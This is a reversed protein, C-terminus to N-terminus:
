TAVATILVQLLLMLLYLCIVTTILIQLLVVPLCPSLYCNYDSDIVFNVLLCPSLLCNYDSDSYLLYVRLFIIVTTILIQLLVVPLCPSFYCNYDSDIVIVDCTFM